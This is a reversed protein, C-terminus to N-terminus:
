NKFTVDILMIESQGATRVQPGWAQIGSTVFLHTNEIKKYGWSLEYQISTVINFPFMQGHHTHGSLQVDVNRGRLEALPTPRHDLVILPLDPPAGSILAALELRSRSHADNRGALVFARDIVALSDELMKIGARQFFGMQGNGHYEHNGPSAFIGYASRIRRFCREFETTGGERDGELVDGPILVIDPQLANIREPFAALFRKHTTDGLHFDAALVIRLHTLASARRPVEIRFANVKMRDYDLSGKVVVAAALGLLLCFLITKFPPSDVVKRPVIGLLRNLALLLDFLLVFLFLYLLYPLAFYGATLLFKLVPMDSAHALM